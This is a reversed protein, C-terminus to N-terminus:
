RRWRCCCSACVSGCNSRLGVYTSMASAIAARAMDVLRAGESGDGYKLGVQLGGDVFLAAWESAHALLNAHFQAGGDALEATATHSPDHCRVAPKCQTPTKCLEDRSSGNVAAHDVASGVIVCGRVAFYRSATTGTQTHEELRVLLEATDYPQTAVGRQANPVVTLSFGRAAAVDWAAVTLARTYRGVISTKYESFNGTKPWWSTHDQPSFLLVGPEEGGTVNPGQDTPSYISFNALWVKGDQAVSFKTHSQVTGVIAYDHTPALYAAAAAFTTEGFASGGEMTRALIDDPDALAAAIYGATGVRPDLRPRLLASVEGVGKRFGQGGSVGALGLRGDPGLFAIYGWRAANFELVALCSNAADTSAADAPIPLADTQASRQQSTPNGGAPKPQPPAGLSVTRTAAPCLFGRLTWGFGTRSAPGAGPLQVTATAGDATGLTLTGTANGTARLAVVHLGTALLAEM